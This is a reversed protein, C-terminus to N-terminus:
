KTDSPEAPTEKKKKRFWKRPDLLGKRFARVIDRGLFPIAAYFTVEGIIILTPAIELRTTDKWPMFPVVFAGICWIVVSFVLLFYGIISLVSLKKREGNKNGSESGNKDKKRHFSIM